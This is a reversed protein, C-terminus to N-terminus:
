EILSTFLLSSKNIAAPMRQKLSVAVFIHMKMINDKSKVMLQKDTKTKNTKSFASSDTLCQQLQKCITEHYIERLFEHQRM